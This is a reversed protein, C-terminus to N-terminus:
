WLRNQNFIINLMRISINLRKGLRNHEVLVAVIIGRLELQELANYLGRPLEDGVRQTASHQTQLKARSEDGAGGNLHGGRQAHDADRGLLRGARKDVGLPRAAPVNVGGGDLRRDLLNDIDVVVRLDIREALAIREVGREESPAADARKSHQQAVAERCLHTLTEGLQRRAVRLRELLEGIRPRWRRRRWRHFLDFGGGGRLECQSGATGIVRVRGGVIAITSRRLIPVLRMVARRDRRCRARRRSMIVSLRRVSRRVSRVVVILRLLRPLLVLLYVLLRLRVQLLQRSYSLPLHMRRTRQRGGPLRRVKTARERTACSWERLSQRCRHHHRRKGNAHWRRLLLLLLLLLLGIAVTTPRRRGGGVAGVAASIGVLTRADGILRAKMAMLSTVNSRLTRLSQLLRLLRLLQLLLLLLMLLRRHRLLLVTTTTSQRRWIHRVHLDCIWAVTHKRRQSSISISCKTRENAQKM